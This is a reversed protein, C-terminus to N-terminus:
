DLSFETTTFFKFYVERGPHFPVEPGGTVEVAVVGGLQTVGYFFVNLLCFILCLVEFLYFIFNLDLLIIFAVLFNYRISILM